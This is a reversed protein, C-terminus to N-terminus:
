FCPTFGADEVDTAGVGEKEKLASMPGSEPTASNQNRIDKDQEVVRM